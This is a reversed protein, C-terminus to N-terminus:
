KETRLKRLLHIENIKFTAEKRIYISHGKNVIGPVTESKPSNKNQFVEM